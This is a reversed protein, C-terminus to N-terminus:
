KDELPRLRYGGDLTITEGTVIDFLPSCLVRCMRGIQEPHPILGLPTFRRRKERAEPSISELDILQPVLTNVTIRSAALECALFGTLENLCKKAFGYGAHHYKGSSTASILIVRASGDDPMHRAANRAVVFSGGVQGQLSNMFQAPTVETLPTYSAGTGALAIVIDIGGLRRSVDDVLRECSSMDMLDLQFLHVEAGLERCEDAVRGAADHDSHWALALRSGPAAFCRAVCPGSENSAGTILVRKGSLDPETAFPM